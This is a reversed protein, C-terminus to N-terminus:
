SYLDLAFDTLLAGGQKDQMKLSSHLIVTFATILSLILAAEIVGNSMYQHINEKKKQHKRASFIIFLSYNNTTVHDKPPFSM